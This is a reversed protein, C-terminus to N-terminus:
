QGLENQEASADEVATSGTPGILEAFGEDDAAEDVAQRFTVDTVDVDPTHEPPSSMATMTGRAGSSAYAGCQTGARPVVPSPDHTM